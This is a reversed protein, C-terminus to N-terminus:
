KKRHKYSKQGPVYTRQKRRSEFFEHSHNVATIEMVKDPPRLLIGREREPYEPLDVEKNDHIVIVTENGLNHRERIHQALATRVELHSASIGLLLIKM